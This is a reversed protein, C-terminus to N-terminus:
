CVPHHCSAIDRPRKKEEIFMNTTIAGGRKRVQVPVVNFALLSQNNLFPKVKGLWKQSPKLGTGRRPVQSFMDDVMRQLQSLSEKGLVAVTMQEASYYSRTYPFPTRPYTPLFLNWIM